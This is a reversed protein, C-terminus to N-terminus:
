VKNREKNTSDNQAPAPRAAEQRQQLEKGVVRVKFLIGRSEIKKRIAELQKPTVEEPSHTVDLLM